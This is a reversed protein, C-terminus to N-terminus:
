PVDMAADLKRMREEIAVAAPKGSNGPILSAMAAVVVDKDERAAGAPISSVESVAVNRFM